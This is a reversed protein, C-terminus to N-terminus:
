FQCIANAGDSLVARLNIFFNHTKTKLRQTRTVSTDLGGSSRVTPRHQCATLGLTMDCNTTIVVSMFCGEHTSWTTVPLSSGPINDGEGRVKEIRVIGVCYHRCLSSVSEGGGAVLEVKVHNNLHSWAVPGASRM